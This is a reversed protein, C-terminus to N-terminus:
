FDLKTLIGFPLDIRKQSFYGDFQQKTVNYIDNLKTSKYKRLQSINIYDSESFDMALWRNHRRIVQNFDLGHLHFAWVGKLVGGREYTYHNGPGWSAPIATITPRLFEKTESIFFSRQKIISEQYNFSAEKNYDHVVHVGHEARYIGAPQTALYDTLKGDCAIIEDTDTKIVWRYRQLLLRQFYGHIIAWNFHSVETQPLNIVSTAPNLKACSGDTGGNNIVFLNEYGVEKAWYREWLLLMEGENFTQTFVALMRPTILNQNLNFDKSIRDYGFDFKTSIQYIGRDFLKSFLNSINNILKM